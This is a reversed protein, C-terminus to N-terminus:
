DDDSDDSPLWIARKAGPKWEIHGSAHLFALHKQITSRSMYCAAAMEQQTPPLGRHAEIYQSIFAYVRGTDPLLRQKPM